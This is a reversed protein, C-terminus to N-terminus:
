NDQVIYNNKEVYILAEYDYLFNRVEVNKLVLTPIMYDENFDISEYLSSVNKQYSDTM